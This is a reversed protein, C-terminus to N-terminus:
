VSLLPISGLALGLSWKNRTADTGRDYDALALATVLTLGGVIALALGAVQFKRASRAEEQAAPVNAMAQVLGGADFEHGHHSFRWGNSAMGRVVRVDNSPRPVYSTACSFTGALLLAICKKM